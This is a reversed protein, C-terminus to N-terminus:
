KKCVQGFLASPNMISSRSSNNMEYLFVVLSHTLPGPDSISIEISPQLVFFSCKVWLAGLFFHM